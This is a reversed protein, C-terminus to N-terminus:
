ASSLLVVPAFSHCWDHDIQGQQCAEHTHSLGGGSAIEQALSTQFLERREHHLDVNDDHDEELSSTKCRHSIFDICLTQHPNHTPLCAHTGNQTAGQFTLQIGVESHRSPTAMLVGGVRNDDDDDDDDDAAAATDDVDDAHVLLVNTAVGEMTSKWMEVADELGMCAYPHDQIAEGSDSGSITGQLPSIVVLAFSKGTGLTSVVMTSGDKTLVLRGSENTSLVQQKATMM